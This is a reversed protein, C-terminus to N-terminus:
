HRRVGASANARGQGRCPRPTRLSAPLWSRFEGQPRNGKVPQSLHSRQALQRTGGCLRACRQFKWPKPRPHLPSTDRPWNAPNQLRGLATIPTLRARQRELMSRVAPRPGIYGASKAREAGRDGAHGRTTVPDGFCAALRASTRPDRCAGARHAPPPWHARSAFFQRPRFVIASRADLPSLIRVPDRSPLRCM